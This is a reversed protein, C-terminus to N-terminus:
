WCTIFLDKLEDIVQQDIQFKDLYDKFQTMAHAFTLDSASGITKKSFSERMNNMTTGTNTNITKDTGDIQTTNNGSNTNIVKTEGTTTGSESGTVTGSGDVSLNNTVNSTNKQNSTNNGTESSKNKNASDVFLNSTLDDETMEESPFQSSLGLTDTNKENNETTDINETSSTNTINSSKNTSSSSNENSNESTETTDINNINASDTKNTLASTVNIEGNNINQGTNEITHSYDEYLEMTYLPNFEMLKAKYMANYKNRMILDMRMRLRSKFVMPNVFGIERFMYYDLIANNLTERYNEDFIEYDNLGFDFGNEILEYISITYNSLESNM